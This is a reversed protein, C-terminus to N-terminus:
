ASSNETATSRPDTPNAYAQEILSLVRLADIPALKIRSYRVGETPELVLQGTAHSYYSDPLEALELVQTYRRKSAALLVIQKDTVCLWLRSRRFWRGTDVKTRSRLRMSVYAGGTLEDLLGAVEPPM